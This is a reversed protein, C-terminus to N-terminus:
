DRRVARRRAGPYAPRRRRPSPLHSRSEGAKVRAKARAAVSAAAMALLSVTGWLRRGNSDLGTAREGLLIPVVEAGRVARIYQDTPVSEARRVVVAPLAAPTNIARHATDSSRRSPSPSYPLTPLPATRHSAHSIASLRPRPPHSPLSKRPVDHLSAILSQHLTSM